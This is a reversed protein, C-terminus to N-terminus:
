LPLMAMAHLGTYHLQVQLFHEMQLLQQCNFDSAKVGCSDCTVLGSRDLLDVSAGHQLLYHVAEWILSKLEDIVHRLSIQKWVTWMCWTKTTKTIRVMDVASSSPELMSWSNVFGITKGSRCAEVEFTAGGLPKVM